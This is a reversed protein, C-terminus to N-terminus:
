KAAPALRSRAENRARAADEFGHMGMAWQLGVIAGKVPQLLGLTMVAVLAPWILM